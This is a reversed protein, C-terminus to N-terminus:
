KRTYVFTSGMMSYTLTNGRISFEYNIPGIIDTNITVINGNVSYTGTFTMGISKEIYTGDRGFTLEAEVGMGGGVWTGVLQSKQSCGIFLIGCVLMMSLICKKNKM